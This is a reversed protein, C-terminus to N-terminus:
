EADFSIKEKSRVYYQRGAKDYWYYEKKGRGVSCWHFCWLIASIYLLTDPLEPM